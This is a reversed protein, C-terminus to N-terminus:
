FPRKRFFVNFLNKRRVLQTLLLLLFAFVYFFLYNSQPVTDTVVVCAAVPIMSLLLPLLIGGGKSVRWATLASLILAMLSLPQALSVNTLDEGSWRLIGWGYASNYFSSLHSLLAETQLLLQGFLLYYVLLCAFAAVLPVWGRRMCACGAACLAMAAFFVLSVPNFSIGFGSCLCGVAGYALLCATVAAVACSLLKEGKM